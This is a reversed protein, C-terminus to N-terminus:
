SKKGKIFKRIQEVLKILWPREQASEEKDSKGNYLLNEAQQVKDDINPTMGVLEDPILPNKAKEQIILSTLHKIEYLVKELDDTVENEARAQMELTVLQEKIQAAKAAIVSDSLAQKLLRIMTTMEDSLQQIVPLLKNNM